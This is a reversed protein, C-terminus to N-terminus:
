LSLLHFLQFLYCTIQFYSSNFCVKLSTSSCNLLLKMSLLQLGNQECVWLLNQYMIQLFGIRRFGSSIMLANWSNTIFSDETKKTQYQVHIKQNNPHEPITIKGTLQKLLKLKQWKGQICGEGPNWWADFKRLYFMYYM